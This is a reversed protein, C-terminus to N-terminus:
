AYVEEFFETDTRAAPLEALVAETFERTTAAVGARVVDHTFAHAQAARLARELTRGAAREGLGEGLMLAAALLMASPDAVGLGAIELASGHTPGFVGVGAGSLRGSAVIRRGGTSFAAMDSLAEAFLTDAVVVDFRQPARAVLPLAQALTLHEVHVGGHRDHEREVLMQWDGGAGVSAVRGRRTRALAFARAVVAEDEDELLPSVIALDGAPALRVRQVRWTLDLDAKVGELAPEKTNAVLIADAAAVARRTPPPLPHGHRLFAEAGFPAHVETVRFHHLRATEQLALSAEAMVEPGVGDGALCAVSYHRERAGM